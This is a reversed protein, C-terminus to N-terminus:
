LLAWLAVAVAMASTAALLTLTLPLVARFVAGASLGTIGSAVFVLVGIPPTLGGIMLNVTLIVGFAVPDIGSAVVSPLLLPAFVAASALVARAPFLGPPLPNKQLM